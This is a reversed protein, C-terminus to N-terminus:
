VSAIVLACWCGGGGTAEAQAGTGGLRRRACPLCLCAAARIPKRRSAGFREALHLVERLPQSVRTPQVSGLPPPAEQAYIAGSDQRRQGPTTTAGNEGAAEVYRSRATAKFPRPPSTQYGIRSQRAEDGPARREEGIQRDLQHDRAILGVDPGAGVAHDAEALGDDRFGAASLRLRRSPRRRVPDLRPSLRRERLRRAPRSGAPGARVSVALGAWLGFRPRAQCRRRRLLGVPVDHRHEVAGVTLTFSGFAAWLVELVAGLAM